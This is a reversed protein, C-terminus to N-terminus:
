QGRSLSIQVPPCTSRCTFCPEVPGVEMSQSCIDGDDLDRVLLTYTSSGDASFEENLGVQVPQGYTTGGPNLVQGNYLVEFKNSPGADFAQATLELIFFDDATYSGTSNNRCITDLVTVGTIACVRVRVFAPDQDDEDTLADGNINDDQSFADNTALTDPTSDFDDLFDKGYEKAQAIEALNRFTSDPFPSDAITFNIPVTVSDGPALGGAQLEGGAVSLWREATSDNLSLWNPDNLVLGDPIYDRLRVSDAILLGQNFVEVEFQVEDGIDFKDPQNPALKKKLALDLIQLVVGVKNPEQASVEDADRALSNWAVPGIAGSADTPAQMLLDLSFTEAPQLTNNLELKIAKVSGIDAPPSTSWDNVCDPTPQVPSIEDRCPDTSQSYYLTVGPPPTIPEILFPVWGTGRPSDNLQVGVDNLYPFIDVIVGNNLPVNGSNLVVLRWFVSDGPRTTATDPFTLFTDDLSGKVFKKANLSAVTQISISGSTFSCLTESLDGDGDLDKSDTTSGDPCTFTRHHTTAYFTNNFSGGAGPEIYTKFTYSVQSNIPFDGSYTWRLLTQGTGGFDPIVEFSPNNGQADLSLGTTNTELVLSGAVFEIEPPLLDMVVLDTLVYNADPDNELTIRFEVTDNLLGLEAEQTQSPAYPGSSLISKSLDIVATSDAVTFTTSKCCMESVGSILNSPNGTQGFFDNINSSTTAGCNTEDCLFDQSAATMCFDNTATTGAPVDNITVDFAIEVYEGPQFAGTFYWRLLTRGTGNFDDIQEFVPNTGSTDFSLGTTNSVIVWTGPNYTVAAPLLDSAIPDILDKFSEVGSVDSNSGDTGDNEVRVTYRVRAQQFYPNGTTADGPPQQVYNIQQSKAPDLRAVTDQICMDNSKVVQPIASGDLPRVADLYATNVYSIGLATANGAHDTPYAAQVVVDVKGTFGSPVNGFDFMFASVFDGPNIGPINSVLFSQHSSTSGGSVWPVFSGSHNLEAWLDFTEGATFSRIDLRVLDFQDPISDVLIFDDVPVTSNNTVTLIFRNTEGVPLIGRDSASKSLSISFSPPLLPDDASGTEHVATGGIATANLAAVNNKPIPNSLGTDNNPDSSPYEVTVQYDTCGGNVDLNGINWTVIGPNGGDHTGGNDASIFSAGPPLTDTLVANTLNENGQVADPCVRVRYTVPTDHYISGTLVSKSVSWQPSAQVTFGAEDSPNGANNTLLVAKNTLVAGGPTSGAPVTVSFTVQASYGDPLGGEPSVQTFDWTITGAGNDVVPSIVTTGGDGNVIISPASDLNVGAPLSDILIAGQCDDVLSSCGFDLTFEVQTGSAASNVDVTKSLTATQAASESVLGGWLSSTFLLFALRLFSASCFVPQWFLIGGRRCFPNRKM